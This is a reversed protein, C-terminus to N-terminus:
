SSARERAFAGLERTIAEIPASWDLFRQQRFIRMTPYWPSRQADLRWRWCTNFRDLMWVPKGLAGAVHAVSTDTTVVLDLQSIIAATDGFDRIEATFDTVRSALPGLPSRDGAAGLQLSVFSVGETAIVPALAALPVSKHQTVYGYDGRAYAAWAVGVRPSRLPALRTAWPATRDAPPSLYPIPGPLSAQTVGLLHALSLMSARAVPASPLRGIAATDTLLRDVGALSALLPALPRWYDDALLVIERVRSRAQPVFRAFQIVDGLGQDALLLLPGAINAGSWVPLQAFRRAPGYRGDPREEFARFGRDFDGRGLRASAIGFRADFDQPDIAAAQKYADEARDLDGCWHRLVALAQWFTALRPAAAAHAELAARAGDLDGDLARAFVYGARASPHEPDIALAREFAARAGATDGSRNRLDGLNAAADAHSPDKALAREFAQLAERRRSVRELAIGLNNYAQAFDPNLQIARELHFIADVPRGASLLAFGLNSRAPAEAPLVAALQEFRRVAVKARGTQLALAGANNLAAPDTPHDALYASYAEEAESLRGDQHLRFAQALRTRDRIGTVTGKGGSGSDVRKV